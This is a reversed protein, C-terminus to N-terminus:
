DAFRGFTLGLAIGLNTHAAALSPDLELARRALRPALTIRPGRRGLARAAAAGAAEGMALCVPM